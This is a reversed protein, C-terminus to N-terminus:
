RIICLAETTESIVM